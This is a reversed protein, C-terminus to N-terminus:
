ENEKHGKLYNGIVKFYISNDKIERIAQIIRDDEINGEFDVFFFYEWTKGKIPRSEIKLMNIGYRSFCEIVKYLSGSQHLTTLVVSIKNSKSDNELKSGIVAFRTTNNGNDCIDEELVKMSYIEAARKSAIAAIEEDNSKKILEVSKATNLYSVKDIYPYKSLFESCQLLAQPHSYVKKIKSINSSGTGILNHRVTLFYEGVIYLGYKNLLDFNENIAGTSSNEIPIVGYEIEGKEIAKFVEEFSDYPTMCAQYGFYEIAAEESYSGRVGQYGINAIKLAEQSDILQKQLNRSEEFIVNYVRTILNSLKKNELIEVNKEVVLRERESDKVEMKKAEKFTAVNKVIDFRRELLKVIEEDINDIEKRIKNLDM